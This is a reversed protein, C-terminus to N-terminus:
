RLLRCRLVGRVRVAREESTCRLAGFYLERLDAGASFGHPQQSYIILADATDTSVAHEHAVIFQELDTILETGIENCPAHHLALELVRGRFEWSLTKLQTSGSSPVNM